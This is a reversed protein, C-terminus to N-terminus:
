LRANNEIKLLREILISQNDGVLIGDELSTVSLSGEEVRFRGSRWTFYVNEDRIELDKIQRPYPMANYILEIIDTAKM